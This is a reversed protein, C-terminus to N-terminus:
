IKLIGTTLIFLKQEISINLAEFRYEAGIQFKLKKSLLWGLQVTTRHDIEPASLKNLSNLLEMSTIM